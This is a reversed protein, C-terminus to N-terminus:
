RFSDFRGSPGITRVRAVCAEERCLARKQSHPAFTGSMREVGGAYARSRGHREGRPVWNPLLARRYASHAARSEALVQAYETMTALM